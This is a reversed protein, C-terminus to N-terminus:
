NTYVIISIDAYGIKIYDPFFPNKLIYIVGSSM